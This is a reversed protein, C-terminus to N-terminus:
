LCIRKDFIISMQKKVVTLQDYYTCDDQNYLKAAIYNGLLMSSAVLDAQSIGVQDWIGNSLICDIPTKYMKLLDVSIAKCDSLNVVASREVAYQQVFDQNGCCAMKLLNVYTIKM